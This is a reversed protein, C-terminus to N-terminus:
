EHLAGSNTTQELSYRDGMWECLTGDDRQCRDCCYICIDKRNPCMRNAPMLWGCVRCKISDAYDRTTSKGAQAIRVFSKHSGM